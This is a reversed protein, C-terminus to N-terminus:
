TTDLAETGVTKVRYHIRLKVEGKSSKSKFSEEAKPMFFNNTIAFHSYPGMFPCKNLSILRLCFIILLLQYNCLLLCKKRLIEKFIQFSKSDKVGPHSFEM